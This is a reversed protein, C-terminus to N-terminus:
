IQSWIHDTKIKLIDRILKQSIRRLGVTERLDLLLFLAVTHHIYSLAIWQTQVKKLLNAFNM